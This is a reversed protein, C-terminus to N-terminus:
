PLKPVGRGTDYPRGEPTLGGAERYERLWQTTAESRALRLIIAGNAYRGGEYDFFVGQTMQEHAELYAATSKSPCIHLIRRVYADEGNAQVESTFQASSGWYRKWDTEVYKVRKRERGMLPPLRKRYLFQKKGIYKRGTERHIIEYVFAFGGLPVEKVPEDKYHWHPRKGM